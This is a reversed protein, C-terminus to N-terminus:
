IGSGISAGDGRRRRNNRARWASWVQTLAPNTCDVMLADALEIRARRRASEASLVRLLNRYGPPTGGWDNIALIEREDISAATLATMRRFLEAILASGQAVDVALSDSNDAAVVDADASFRQSGAVYAHLSDSWHHYTGVEIGLWGALVEHLVTFQVLNYPLGRFLDNSRMVQTWELLGGRVKLISVVNCPIDASRPRGDALPLDTRADWLQLVVQRGDPNATLAECAQKVQDIGFHHRLRHGYAGHYTPGDGAFRPLGPFWYNLVAAENSGALLVMAEAVAFGPNLAPHRSVVWRQRPDDIAIVAHLIERTDGARSAQSTARSAGGLIASEAQCWAEDATRSQFVYM